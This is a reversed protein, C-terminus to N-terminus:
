VATLTLKPFRLHCAWASHKYCRLEVDMAEGDISIEDQLTESGTLKRSWITNRGNATTLELSFSGSGSIEITAELRYRNPPLSVPHGYFVYGSRHAPFYGNKDFAFPRVFPTFYVNPIAAAPRYVLDDRSMLAATEHVDQGIKRLRLVAIGNAFMFPSDFTAEAMDARECQIWAQRPTNLHIDMDQKRFYTFSAAERPVGYSDFLLDMYEGSFQILWGIDMLQGFPVTVLATGDPELLNYIRRIARLPAERDGSKNEGYAHQGIHEVTSLCLITKHKTDYDMLDVNLVGPAEEFKDLVIRNALTPQKALLEEYNALVNGIELYPRDTGTMTEQLYRMAIPLEITRESCNGYPLQNYPLPQCDYLFYNLLPMDAFGM